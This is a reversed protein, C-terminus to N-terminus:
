AVLTVSLGEAEAAHAQRIDATWFEILNTRGVNVLELATALHLADVARLPREFVIREARRFLPTSLGVVTYQHRLHNQFEGWIDTGARTHVVGERIRRGIASAIEVATLESM